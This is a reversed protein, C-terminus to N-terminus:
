ASSPMRSLWERRTPESIHILSLPFGNKFNDLQKNLESVSIGKNSLQTEDHQTLMSIFTKLKEMRCFYMSKRLKSFTQRNKQIKTM